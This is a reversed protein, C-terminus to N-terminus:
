IDQPNVEIKGCFTHAILNTQPLYSFGGGLRVLSYFISTSHAAHYGGFNSTLVVDILNYFLENM